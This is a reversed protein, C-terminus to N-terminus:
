NHKYKKNEWVSCIQKIKFCGLNVIKGRLNVIDYLSNRWMVNSFFLAKFYKKKYLTLILSSQM